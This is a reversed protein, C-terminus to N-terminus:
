TDAYFEARGGCRCVGRRVAGFALGFRSAREARGMREGGRASCIKGLGTNKEPFDGITPRFVARDIGNPIVRVPYDAMFSDKVLGALWQSPTVITLDRVGTFAAKKRWFNEVANGIGFCAPYKKVLSCDGSCGSKWQDCEAENFMACHGTFSWCDHLTWVVPIGATKLNDFLVEYHIYYGHICHLHILDPKLM